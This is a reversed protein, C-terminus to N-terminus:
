KVPVGAKRLEKLIVTYINGLEAMSGDWIPANATNVYGGHSGHMATDLIKSADWVGNEYNLSSADFYVEAHLGSGTRVLSNLLKKTRIYEEPEYEGYFVRLNKEIIGYIKERTNFVAVKSRALIDKEIQEVTSM